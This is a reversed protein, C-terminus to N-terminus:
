RETIPRRKMHRRRIPTALRPRWSPPSFPPPRCWHRITRTPWMPRRLETQPSRGPRSCWACRFPELCPHAAGASSVSRRFSCANIGRHCRGRSKSASSSHRELPAASVGRRHRHFFLAVPRGSALRPQHGPRGGVPRGTLHPPASPRSSSSMTADEAMEIPRSSRARSYRPRNSKGATERRFRCAWAPALDRPLKSAPVM